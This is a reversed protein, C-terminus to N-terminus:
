GGFPFSESDFNSVPTSYNNNYSGANTNGSYSNNQQPQQAGQASFNSTTDNKASHAATGFVDSIKKLKDYFFLFEAEVYDDNGAGTEPDYDTVVKVKAFKYSYVGNSPAKGNQDVNTYVTLYLSPTGSEDNKYEVAILTSKNTVPLVVSVPSALGNGLKVENVKPMIKSDISEALAICKESTLATNVRRQYDYNRIGDASVSALPNIKISVNDNWYGIQLSSLDGYFTKIRTNVSKQIGGNATNPMSNAYVMAM